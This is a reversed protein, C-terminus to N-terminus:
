RHSGKKSSKKMKRITLRASLRVMIHRDNSLCELTHLSTRVSRAVECRLEWENSKALTDLLEQTTHPNWVIHLLASTTFRKAMKELDQVDTAAEVLPIQLFEPITELNLTITKKPM